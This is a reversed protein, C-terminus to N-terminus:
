PWTDSITFFFMVVIEAFNFSYADVGTCITM